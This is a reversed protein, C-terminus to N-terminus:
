RFTGQGEQARGGGDEQRGEGPGGGDESAAKVQDAIKMDYPSRFAKVGAKIGAKIGAVHM